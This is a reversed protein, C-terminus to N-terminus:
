EGRVIRMENEITELVGDINELVENNWFRIVSYGHAELIESRAVDPETNLAHQGGDLEIVIKLSRCAFDVIFPGLPFQRVFKAGIQGARLRTWLLREADTM